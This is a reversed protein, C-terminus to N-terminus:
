RNEDRTERGWKRIVSEPYGRAKRLCYYVLFDSSLLHPSPNYAPFFDDAVFLPPEPREVTGLLAHHFHLLQCVWSMYCGYSLPWQQYDKPALLGYYFLEQAFRQSMGFIASHMHYTAPAYEWADHPVRWQALLDTVQLFNEAYCVSDAAGILDAENQYFYDSLWRDVGKNVCLATDRLCLVQSFKLEQQFAAQIGVNFRFDLLEKANSTAAGIVIDAGVDQYDAAKKAPVVVVVHHPYKSAWRMAAVSDAVTEPSRATHVVYLTVSDARM